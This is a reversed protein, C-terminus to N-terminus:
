GALITNLHCQVTCGFSPCLVVCNDLLVIVGDLMIYAQSTPQELPDHASWSTEMHHGFPM